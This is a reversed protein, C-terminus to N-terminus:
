NIKYNQKNLTITNKTFLENSSISKIIWYDKYFYINKSNKHNLYLIIITIGYITIFILVSIMYWSFYGRYYIDPEYVVIRKSPINDIDSSSMSAFVYLSGSLSSGLDDPTLNRGIDGINWLGTFLAKLGVFSFKEDNIDSFTLSNVLHNLWTSGDIVVDATKINEYYISWNGSKTLIRIKIPDHKVFFSQTNFNFKKEMQITNNEMTVDSKSVIIGTNNYCSTYIRMFHKNMIKEKYIGSGYDYWTDNCTFGDINSHFAIGNNYFTPYKDIEISANYNSYVIYKPLEVTWTYTNNYNKGISFLWQTYLETVLLNDRIPQIAADLVNTFRAGEIKAYKFDFNTINYIDTIGSDKKNEIFMKIKTIEDAVMLHNIILLSINSLLFLFSLMKYLTFNQYIDKIINIPFKGSIYNLFTKLQLSSKNYLDLGIFINAIYYTMLNTTFGNLALLLQGIPIYWFPLKSEEDPVVKIIWWLINIISVIISFLCKKFLLWIIKDCKDNENENKNKDIIEYEKKELM